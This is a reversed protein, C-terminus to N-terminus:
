SEPNEALSTVLNVLTRVGVGTSGSTLYGKNKDTRATGAIDLHAWPVEEAFEAIFYAATIAGAGQGGTNKIDAVTSKIQERYEEFLPLQWIREGATEGADIVRNILAQNNGLVASAVTGLAIRAAGTLTAIDVLRKTLISRAETRARRIM